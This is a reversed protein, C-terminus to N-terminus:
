SITQLETTSSVYFSGDGAELLESLPKPLTKTCNSRGRCAGAYVNDGTLPLKGAGPLEVALDGTWSATKPGELRFTASGSFPAPPEITAETLPEQQNPTLFNTAADRGSDFVFARRYVMFAGVAPGESTVEFTSMANKSGPPAQERTAQLILDGSREGAVLRYEDMEAAKESIEKAKKSGEPHGGPSAEVRCDIAGRRIIAGSVHPAQVTTYGREGHFVFSGAFYGEETKSPDGTCNKEPEEVKTSNTVFHGRFHGRNGIKLDIRGGALSRLRQPRVAFYNVTAGAEHGTVGYLSLVAMHDFTFLSFSFGNTAKGSLLGFLHARQHVTKAAGAGPAFVLLAAMAMLSAAM